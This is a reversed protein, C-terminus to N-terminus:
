YVLIMINFQPGHSPAPAPRRQSTALDPANPPLHRNDVLRTTIFHGLPAPRGVDPAEPHCPPIGAKRRAAVPVPLPAGSRMARAPHAPPALHASATQPPYWITPCYTRSPSETSCPLPPPAKQGFTPMSFVQGDPLFPTCFSPEPGHHAIKRPHQSSSGRGVPASATRGTARTVTHEARVQRYTIPPNRIM